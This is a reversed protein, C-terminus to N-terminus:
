RSRPAASPNTFRGARDHGLFPLRKPERKTKRWSFNPPRSASSPRTTFIEVAAKSGSGDVDYSLVGRNPDYVLYDNTDKAKDGVTFFAKNLKGPKLVTGKGLKTFVANDLGGLLADTGAAGYLKDNGTGGVLTDRGARGILIKPADDATTPIPNSIPAAAVTDVM